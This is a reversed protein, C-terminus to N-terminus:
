YNIRRDTCGMIIVRPYGKVLELSAINSFLIPHILIHDNDGLQIQYWYGNSNLATILATMNSEGNHRDVQSRKLENYAVFGIKADYLPKSIGQLFALRAYSYSKTKSETQYHGIVRSHAEALVLNTTILVFGLNAVIVSRGPLTIQRRQSSRSNVTRRIRPWSTSTPPTHSDCYYEIRKKSVTVRSRKISFAYGREADWAQIDELLEDNSCYEAEPPLSDDRFSLAGSIAENDM